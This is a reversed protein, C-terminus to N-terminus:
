QYWGTLYHWSASERPKVGAIIRLIKNQLICLHKLNSQYIIGWIHNCYTLYPYICTYYLTILGKNNLYNRAKIIMELGRSIKNAVHTVHDKWSLKKDIIVVLFKTKRVEEIKSGDIMINLEDLRKKENTFMMFHTKGINLSLKNVKLWHSIKSLEFNLWKSQVLSPCQWNKDGKSFVKSFHYILWSCCLITSLIVLWKSCRHLLTMGALLKM